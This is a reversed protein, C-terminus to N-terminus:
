GGSGEYAGRKQALEKERNDLELKRKELEQAIVQLNALSEAMVVSTFSLIIILMLAAKIKM